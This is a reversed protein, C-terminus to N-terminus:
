KEGRARIAEDIAACFQGCSKDQIDKVLEAIEEREAGVAERLAQEILKIGDVTLLDDDCIKEWLKEAREALNM